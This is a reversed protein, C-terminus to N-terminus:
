RSGVPLDDEQALRAPVPIPLDMLIQAYAKGQPDIRLSAMGGGGLTEHLVYNLAHLGPLEFCDVRGQCFHAFYEAVASAPLGARIFPLYAPKRAILGINALDGKDGSRGWALAVLPVDVMPEDDLPTPKSITDPAPGPSATGPAVACSVPEGDLHVLPLIGAKPALFSFLRVVPQPRPRGAFFGTLGQPGGTGMPAIESAFVEVASRQKHRVGIKLVVERPPRAARTGYNVEAGLVEISVEDFGPMNRDGLIRECRRIISEGLLQAREASDPGILTPMSMARYGDQYTASIKYQDTCPRGRTGTVAIRDPGDEALKVQTFDCIVDPLIYNAPDGIEYLLQEAVTGFTVLGGTHEPKTITFRGDAHCEALPFGMDDWGGVDRWDTHIGGAVQAGCELLHGVLSGTALMDWDDDQWGFEHMLPGLALASDTCRGTIVIDAGADLARAIPRAGFYANASTFVKPAPTGSFMEKLGPAQLLDARSSVDDGTVTAISIDVGAKRAVEALAKRCAQPNVGGANTVVRIGRQKIESLFPAIAAIADPAYGMDPSKARARVLLSMTVEALYDSILYDLGDVKMLQSAAYQSDGWFGAWCGIKVSRM